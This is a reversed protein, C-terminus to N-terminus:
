VHARGIQPAEGVPDGGGGGGCAALVASAAGVALPALPRATHAPPRIGPESAQAWTPTDVPKLPAEIETM